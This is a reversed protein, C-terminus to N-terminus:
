GGGLDQPTLPIGTLSWLEVTEIGSRQARFTDSLPIETGIEKTEIKEREWLPLMSLPYKKRVITGM